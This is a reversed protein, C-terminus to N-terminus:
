LSARHARPSRGTWNRYARSFSSTESFGLLFSIETLSLSKDLVYKEGLERRITALLNKFSENEDALKRILTRTSMNLASAVSELSATGSPLQDLIEARTRSVIDDRDVRALYEVVMRDLNQVLQPNFGALPEDAVSVPLLVDTAEASFELECQFFEYCASCNSPRKRVFRILKPRFGPGYALRCLQVFNAVRHLERLAPDRFESSHAPFRVRLEGGQEAMEMKLEESVMRGYRQLREFAKRLTASTVWALGLAGMFSPMLNVAINFVFADDKSKQSALFLLDDAQKQSVRAAIDTRLSPDIGAERFLELPNLGYAEVGKWIMGLAPAFITM